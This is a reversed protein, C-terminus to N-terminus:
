KKQQAFYDAARTMEDDTYGKVLQHMVTSPRSGSRFASIQQLFYAKDLGALPPIAASTKGDTGHCNFCNAIFYNPTGTDALAPTALLAVLGSVFILRSNM